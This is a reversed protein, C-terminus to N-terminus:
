PKAGELKDLRARLGTVIAQLGAATQNAETAFTDVRKEFAAIEDRLADIEPNGLLPGYAAERITSVFVRPVNLHTAIRDDSFGDLYRGKADDFNRDLASRIQLRQENTPQRPPAEAVVALKAPKDPHSRRDTMADTMTPEKPACCTPCLASTRNTKCDWGAAVARKVIFDPSLAGGNQAFDQGAGCRSCTFRAVPRFVNGERLVTAMEFPQKHKLTLAAAGQRPPAEVLEPEPEDEPREVAIGMKACFTFVAVNCAHLIKGADKENQRILNLLINAATAIMTGGRLHDPLSKMTRSVAAELQNQAETITAIEDETPKKV